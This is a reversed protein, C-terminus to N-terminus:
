NQEDLKNEYKEKKILCDRFCLIWMVAIWTTVFITYALRIEDDTM